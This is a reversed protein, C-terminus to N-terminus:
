SQIAIIVIHTSFKLSYKTRYNDLAHLLALKFTPMPISIQCRVEATDNRMVHPTRGRQSLSICAEPSDDSPTFRHLEKAFPFFKQPLFALALNCVEACFVFIPCTDCSCFLRTRLLLRVNYPFQQAKYLIYEHADDELVKGVGRTVLEKCM